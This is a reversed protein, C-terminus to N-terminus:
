EQTVVGDVVGDMSVQEVEITIGHESESTKLSDSFDPESASQEAQICNTSGTIPESQISTEDVFPLWVVLFWLPVFSLLARLGMPNIHQSVTAWVSVLVEDPLNSAVIIRFAVCLLLPISLKNVKTTNTFIAHFMPAM